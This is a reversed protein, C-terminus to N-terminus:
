MQKNLKKIAKLLLKNNNIKDYMSLLWNLEEETIELNEMIFDELRKIEEPFLNIKTSDNIEGITKGGGFYILLRKWNDMLDVKRLLMISTYNLEPINVYGKRRLYNRIESSDKRTEQLVEGAKKMNMVKPLKTVKGKTRLYKSLPVVKSVNYFEVAFENFTFIDPVRGKEIYDIYKDLKNFDVM